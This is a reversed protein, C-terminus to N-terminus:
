EYERRKKQNRVLEKYASADYVQWEGTECQVLWDGTYARLCGNTVNSSLAVTLFNNKKEDRVVATVCPLTFMREYTSPHIQISFKVNM